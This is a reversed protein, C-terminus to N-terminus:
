KIIGTITGRGKPESFEGTEPNYEVSGGLLNNIATDSIEPYISKIYDFATGWGWERTDLKTITTAIDKRFAEEKKADDTTGGGGGGEKYAGGLDRITEGTQTNILLSRGGATVVQTDLEVPEAKKYWSKTVGKADTTSVVESGAPASQGPILYTYGKMAMDKSTDANEKTYAYQALKVSIQEPTDKLTVGAQAYALATDPDTMAEQIRQANEIVMNRDNELTAIKAKLFDKEESTLTMLMQQSDGSKSEYMNALASYYDLQDSYAAQIVNTANTLQSQAQNMQGNYVSITAEIVGAAAAVDSITQEIRPQRIASLGTANKQQSIMANGETLLTQLNNALGQVKAYNEDFRATEENLRDLILQKQEAAQAGFGEIAEQQASRAAELDARAQNIQDTFLAQQRDREAQLAQTTAALNQEVGATYSLAYDSSQGYNSPIPTNPQPNEITGMSSVDQAPNNPNSGYQGVVLSWGKNNAEAMVEDQSMGRMPQFQGSQDKFWGYYLPQTSGYSMGALAGGNAGRQNQLGSYYASIGDSAKGMIPVLNGDADTGYGVITNPEQAKAIAAQDEESIGGYNNQQPQVTPQVTPQVAPATPQVSVVNKSNTTKNFDSRAQLGKLLDQENKSSWYSVFNPDNAFDQQTYGYKQAVQYPNIAM